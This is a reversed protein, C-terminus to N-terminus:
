IPSRNKKASKWSQQLNEAMPIWLTDAIQGIIHMLTRSVATESQAPSRLVRFAMCGTLNNFPNQQSTM